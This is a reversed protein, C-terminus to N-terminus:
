VGSVQSFGMTRVCDFALSYSGLLALSDNFETEANM